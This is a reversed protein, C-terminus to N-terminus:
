NNGNSDLKPKCCFLNGSDTLNFLQWKGKFFRYKIREVVLSRYQSVKDFGSFKMKFSYQRQNLSLLHLRFDNLQHQSLMLDFETLLFLNSFLILHLFHIRVMGIFKSQWQVVVFNHIYDIYLGLMLSLLMAM